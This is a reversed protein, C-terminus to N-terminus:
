PGADQRSLLWGLICALKATDLSVDPVFADPEEPLSEDFLRARGLYARAVRENGERYRDILRRRQSSRLLPSDDFLGTGDTAQTLAMLQKHFRRKELPKLPLRNVLRQFELIDRNLRTNIPASSWAIGQGSLGIVELFDRRIDGDILGPEEYLRVLLAESGFAAAWRGLIVDYDWLEDWRSVSDTITGTYGQAKVLQNYWSVHADDQRRLYVVVRLARGALGAAEIVEAVRKPDTLLYFNESSLIISCDGSSAKSLQRVLEALTLTQSTAWDPYGGGMLFALDHHGYGRLSVDPYLWGHRELTPRNETLFQQLATSGTKPAGIHLILRRDDSM